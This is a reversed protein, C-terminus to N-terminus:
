KNKLNEMLKKHKALVAQVKHELDSDTFSLSELTVKITYKKKIKEKIKDEKQM